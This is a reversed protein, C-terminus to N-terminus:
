ARTGQRPGGYEVDAGHRHEEGPPTWVVDGPRAQRIEGGGSQIPAIGEVIYLAQRLGHSHWATRAGPLLPGRRGM